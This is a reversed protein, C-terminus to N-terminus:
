DGSDRAIGGVKYVCVTSVTWMQQLARFCGVVDTLAPCHWQYPKSVRLLFWLLIFYFLSVAGPILHTHLLKRWLSVNSSRSCAQPWHRKRTIVGKIATHQTSMISAEQTVKSWTSLKRHTWDRRSTSYNPDIKRQIISEILSRSICLLNKWKLEGM